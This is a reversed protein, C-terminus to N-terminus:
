STELADAYYEEDTLDGPDGPFGADVEEDEDDDGGSEDEVALAAAVAHLALTPSEASGTGPDTSTSFAALGRVSPLAAVGGGDAEGTPDRDVPRDPLTGTVELLRLREQSLRVAMRRETPNATLGAGWRDLLEALARRTDPFRHTTAALARAYVLAEQSFPKGLAPAHEWELAHWRNDAPDQFWIRSIDGPDISFPWKGEHAGHYPSTTNRYPSLAPGNYRLTNVEVGYHHIPRWEV